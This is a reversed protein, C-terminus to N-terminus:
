PETREGTVEGGDFGLTWTGKYTTGTFEMIFILDDGGADGYATVKQGEVTAAYIEIPGVPGETPEIMGTYNGPEGRIVVRGIVPAGEVVTSFSYVGVPDLPRPAPPESTVSRAACAVLGAVAFLSVTSAIAKM